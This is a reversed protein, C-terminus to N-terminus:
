LSYGIPQTASKHLTLSSYALHYMQQPLHLNGLDEQRYIINENTTLERARNLM